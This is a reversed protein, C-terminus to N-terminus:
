EAASMMMPAPALDMSEGIFGARALRWVIEKLADRRRGQSTRGTRVPRNPVDFSWGFPLASRAGRECWLSDYDVFLKEQQRRERARHVHM